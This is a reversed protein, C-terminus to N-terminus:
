SLCGANTPKLSEALRMQFAWSSCITPISEPPSFTCAKERCETKWLRVTRSSSNQLLQSNAARAVSTIFFNTTSINNSREQKCFSCSYEAFRLSTRFPFGLRRSSSMRNWSPVSGDIAPLSRL